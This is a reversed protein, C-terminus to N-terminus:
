ERGGHLSRPLGSVGAGPVVGERMAFRRLPSLASLMGLGASRAVQAPLMDALLSRNLLDVGVTRLTVDTKRSAEYSSLMAAGGVDDRHQMAAKVIDEADRMGLNLGQAGIPPFVHAAEGVLAIRPATFRLAQAGSLPFAQMGSEVSVAGLTSHLREEVLTSLAEGSLTRLTQAEDPREVWVLSSRQGPLPVQTFPGSRRHFETSVNGHPRAHGFNLVIATQPYSWRRIGIGAYTRVPSNRGDAGVVLGARIRVGNELTLSVTDAGSEMSQLLSEQWTIRPHVRLREALLTTLDANLVNIGFADLGIEAARFEVPPARLLRGTDDIIRLVALPAGRERVPKELGHRQLFAVSRGFLATSRGDSPPSPAALAVDFGEDAFALAVSLGALGGGIVAVDRRM